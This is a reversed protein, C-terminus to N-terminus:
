CPNIILFPKVFPTVIHKLMQLQQQLNYIEIKQNNTVIIFNENAANAQALEAILKDKQAELDTIKNDLNATIM